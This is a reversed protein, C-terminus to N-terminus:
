LKHALSKGIDAQEPCCWDYQKEEFVLYKYYATNSRFIVSVKYLAQLKPHCFNASYGWFTLYVLSSFSLYVLLLYFFFLLALSFMCNMKLNDLAAQRLILKILKM